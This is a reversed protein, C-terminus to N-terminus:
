NLIKELYRTDLAAKFRKAEISGKAAVPRRM